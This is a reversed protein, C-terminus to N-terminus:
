PPTAAPSTLTVTFTQGDRELTLTNTQIMQLLAFGGAPKGDIAIVLDGARINARAAAGGPTVSDVVWTDFQYSLHLGPDFREDQPPPPEDSGAERARLTVHEAAGAALHVELPATPTAEASLYYTGAPLGEFTHDHEVVLGTMFQQGFLWVRENAFGDLHLAITGPRTTHLVVNAAGADVSVEDDGGASTAAVKYTGASLHELEFAGNRDTTTTVSRHLASASVEVDIAPAGREDIVRGSITLSEIRVRLKGVDLDTNGDALAFRPWRGGAAPQLVQGDVDAVQMFYEGGGAMATASFSGDQRTVANGYDRDGLKSFSVHAGPIPADNQDVVVGHITGALDLEIDYTVHEDPKVTVKRNRTFAVDALEAYIEVDGPALNTLHYSGDPASTTRARATTVTVGGIPKGKRTTHGTITAAHALVPEVIEEGTMAVLEIPAPLEITDGPKVFAFLRDRSFYGESRAFASFRASPVHHVEFRGRADTKGTVEGRSSSIVVEINPAPQHSGKFVVSGTVVAEPALVFDKPTDTGVYLSARRLAFGESTVSIDQVGLPLCMAYSGDDNSETAIKGATIEAHDIPGGGVLDTVVGHLWGDCSSEPMRIVGGDELTLKQKAVARPHVLASGHRPATAVDDAGHAGALWWIAIAVVAM